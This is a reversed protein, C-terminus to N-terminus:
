VIFFYVGVNFVHITNILFYFYVIVSLFLATRKRAKKNSRLLTADFRCYLYVCVLLGVVFKFMFVLFDGTEIILTKILPNQEIGIGFINVQFLTLLIDTMNLGFLLGLFLVFKQNSELFRNAIM